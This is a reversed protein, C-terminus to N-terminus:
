IQEMLNLILPLSQILSEPVGCGRLFVEPIKGKSRILTDIGITSPGYHVVSDLGKVDSLDVNAFVTSNCSVYSLDAWILDAESLNAGSLNAGSLIAQALNAESLNAGDLCRSPQIAGNIGNTSGREGATSCSLPRM